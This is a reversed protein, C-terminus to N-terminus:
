DGGTRPAVNQNLHFLNGPDYTTKVEVLRDYNDGFLLTAPDEGLGPFNAYRGSAVALSEAEAVGDRVWAVNADDDAPDEWNAEFNLMFPKDRHWFATADQPPDSVAGGLTWLDVTSLASPASENYGLVVDIVEDTVAELFISKWYYRMGDPYDEDLLRQLDEYPMPGSFDVLPEAAALFPEFRDRGADLDGRATGLMALAPEGRAEGPFEDLDPVHAAFPLLSVNRPASEVWERFRELVSEGEDAPFWPFFVYVEPGVEHLRYEFSTVVGFNGGGGRVAWFLDEHQSESATRVVGDATVVDVSVLNDAALGYERSLHGYGGNLTFGAIGTESVVGLATALGFLQTEHDVDGLRAGGEARVTRADREVRVGTMASLDITLAGDAVAKGAANHGGGRVAVELDNERAFNVAAVVDATGTPRVVAAPHRDIMGNWVSRALDYGDDDPLLIEGRFASELSALREAIEFTDGFGEGGM